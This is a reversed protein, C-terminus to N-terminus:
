GFFGKVGGLVLRNTVAIVDEETYTEPTEGVPDFFDPDTLFAKLNDGIQMGYASQGSGSPAETASTGSPSGSPRSRFFDANTLYVLAFVAVIALLIVAIGRRVIKSDM